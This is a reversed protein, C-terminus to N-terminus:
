LKIIKFFHKNKKAIENVLEKTKKILDYNSLYKKKSEINDITKFLAFHTAFTLIFNPIIETFGHGVFFVDIMKQRRRICFHRIIEKDTDKTIGYSKYDDFIVSCNFSKKYLEALIGDQYIIRKAGKFTEIDKIEITKVTKKNVIINKKIVELEDLHTWEIEDPTIVIVKKNRKIQNEVFPQLFGTTKGTGNHGLIITLRTTREKKKTQKM